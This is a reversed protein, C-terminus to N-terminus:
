SVMRKLEEFTEKPIIEKIPYICSEEFKIDEFIKIAKNKYKDFQRYDGNLHQIVARMCYEFVKDLKIGGKRPFLTAQVM